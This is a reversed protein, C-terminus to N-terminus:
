QVQLVVHPHHVHVASVGNCIQRVGAGLMGLSDQAYSKGLVWLCM